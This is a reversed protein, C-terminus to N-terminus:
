SVAAYEILFDRWRLIMGDLTIGYVTEFRGVDWHVQFYKEAGYTEVLYQVFSTSTIRSNLEPVFIVNRENYEPGIPRYGYDESILLEYARGHHRGFRELSSEDFYNNLLYALGEVFPLFNSHGGISIDIRHVVEHAAFYPFHLSQKAYHIENLEWPAFGIAEREPNVRFDRYILHDIPEFDFEFYDSFWSVVFQTANEIYDIYHMMDEFLIGYRFAGFIFVYNGWKTSKRISYGQPHSRHGDYGLELFFNAMMSKNAFDYFHAEAAEHAALLDEALYLEALENLLENEQLFGVFRHATFIVQAQEDTGWFPPSFLFDGFNAPIIDHIIKDKVHCDLGINHRAISEIGVSLWMPFNHLSLKNTLWGITNIDNHNLPFTVDFEYIGFRSLSMLLTTREEPLAVIDSIENILAETANVFSENIYEDATSFYYRRNEIRYDLAYGLLRPIPRVDSASSVNEYNGSLPNNSCSTLSLATFIVAFFIALVRM